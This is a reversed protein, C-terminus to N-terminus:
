RRVIPRPGRATLPRRNVPQGSASTPEGDGMFPLARELRPGAMAMSSVLEIAFPMSAVSAMIFRAPTSSSIVVITGRPLYRTSIPPMTASTSAESRAPLSIAPPATRSSNRMWFACECSGAAMLPFTLTSERTATPIM